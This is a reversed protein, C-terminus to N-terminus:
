SSRPIRRAFHHTSIVFGANLYLRHAEAPDLGVGSDLHLQACGLRRAEDILWELLRRGYGRRRAAPLTSLDDVYLFRGWAISHGSRFGATAVAHSVDDEFVGVLGYGEPRELEDLAGGRGLWDATLVSVSTGRLLTGDLDFCVVPWRARMAHNQRILVCRREVLRQRKALWLKGGM